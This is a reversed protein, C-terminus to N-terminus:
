PWPTQNAPGQEQSAGKESGMGPTDTAFGVDVAIGVKPDIGFASTIWDINEFKAKKGEIRWEYTGSPLISNDYEEWFIRIRNEEHSGVKENIENKNRFMSANVEFVEVKVPCQKLYYKMSEELGKQNVKGVAIIKIM